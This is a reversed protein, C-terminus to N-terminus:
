ILVYWPLVKQSVKPRERYRIRDTIAVPAAHEGLLAYLERPIGEPRKEATKQKKVPRPSDDDNLNLMDRVDASTMKVQAEARDNVCEVHSLTSLKLHHQHYANSLTITYYFYIALQDHSSRLRFNQPTSRLHKSVIKVHRSM